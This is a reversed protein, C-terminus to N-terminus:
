EKEGCKIVSLGYEDIFRGNAYYYHVHYLEEKTQNRKFEALCRLTENNIEKLEIGEITIINEYIFQCDFYKENTEWIEDLFNVDNINIM